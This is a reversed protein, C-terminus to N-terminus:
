LFFQKPCGMTGFDLLFWSHSRISGWRLFEKRDPKNIFDHVDESELAYFAKVEKDWEPRKDLIVGGKLSIDKVSSLMDSFHKRDSLTKNRLESLEVHENKLKNSSIELRVEKNTKQQSALWDSIRKSKDKPRTNHSAAEVTVSVGLEGDKDKVNRSSRKKGHGEKRLKKDLKRLKKDSKYKSYEEPNKQKLQRKEEKSLKLTKIKTLNNNQAILNIKNRLTKRYESPLFLPNLKHSM